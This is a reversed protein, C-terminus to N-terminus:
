HAPSHFESFCPLRLDRANLDKYSRFRGTEFASIKRLMGSPVGPKKRVIGRGKRVMGRGVGPIKEANWQEPSFCWLWAIWTNKEGNWEGM